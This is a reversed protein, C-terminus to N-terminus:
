AQGKQQLVLNLFPDITGAWGPPIFITSDLSEVIAPGPVVNGWGLHQRLYVAATYWSQEHLVRRHGSRSAEPAVEHGRASAPTIKPKVTEGLAKVRLTVMEIPFDRLSIGRISEHLDHFRRACDALDKDTLPGGGPVSMTIEYAQGRYRLDMSRLVTRREEPVDEDALARLALAELEAFERSLDQPGIGGLPGIRTRVFDHTIDSFLLGVAATVGPHPPVIVTAIGLGEAIVASQLPGMGGFAFLAFDRPDYGRHVSVVRIAQNVLEEGVRCIGDAAEEVAIGLPQAVHREIAEWALRPHGEMAGGLFSREGLRGTVLYADSLTPETGGRGYCAPGPYSGASRPGVRIAGAVDIRAISGGGAGVTHIDIMPIRIPYREMRQDKTFLLEGDVILSVDTSTGGTDLTILNREGALVGISRAAIVGGAPGSLITSVARDGATRPSMLGGNSQMVSLDGRFGREVLRRDLKGVYTRLIPALYANMATTSFREYERFEPLVECSCFVAADPWFEGIMAKVALENTPNSVCWLFGVVIAEVGQDRFREVARAVEDRDPHVLITGDATTREHVELTLDVPVLPPPLAYSPLYPISRETRGLTLVDRFGRTTLMGLRAGRGELLANTCVTTGHVLRSIESLDIGLDDIGALVSEEIRDPMTPVKAIAIAGEGALLALDTFTGGIDVGLTLRIDM